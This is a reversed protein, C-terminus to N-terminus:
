VPQLPNLNGSKERHYITKPFVSIKIFLQGKKSQIKKKKTLTALRHSESYISFVIVAKHFIILTDTM